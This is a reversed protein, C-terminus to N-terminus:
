NQLKFHYKTDNTLNTIQFNIDKSYVYSLHLGFDEGDENLIPLDIRLSCFNTGCNQKYTGFDDYLLPTERLYRKSGRRYGVVNVTETDSYGYSYYLLYGVNEPTNLSNYILKLCHGVGTRLSSSAPIISLVTDKHDPLTAGDNCSAIEVLGLDIFDNEIEKTINAQNMLLTSTIRSREDENRVTILVSILFILIVSILTVGVIIEVLTMGKNNKIM